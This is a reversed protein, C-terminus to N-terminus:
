NCHVESNTDLAKFCKTRTKIIDFCSVIHGKNMTPLSLLAHIFIRCKYKEDAPNFLYLKLTM